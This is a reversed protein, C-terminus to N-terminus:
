TSITLSWCRTSPLFRESRGIGSYVEHNGLVAFKGRPPRLEALMGALYDLRDTQADVLDGTCVVIDPQSQKVLDMIRTLRGKGVMLGLHLDSIQVIILRDEQVPLKAAELTLRDLRIHWASFTSWLGLVFTSLVLLGFTKRAGWLLGGSHSGSIFALFRMFLSVLDLCLGIWVFYFLLGMWAYGFYAVFRAIQHLGHRGLLRVAIPALVMSVLFFALIITPGLGFAFAARAKFFAYLHMSGYVLIFAFLFLYMLRRRDIKGEHKWWPVNRTAYLKVFHRRFM